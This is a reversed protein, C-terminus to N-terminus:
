RRYSRDSRSYHDRDRDRDRDRERGGDRRGDGNRERDRENKYSDRYRDERRDRMKDRDRRYEDLRPRRDGKSKGKSDWGGLDEEGTLKKSGLGMGNPRKTIEKAKPGRMKGDWGQGMLLSAGFGEVPIADYTELDDEEPANAAADRYASDETRQVIRKRGTDKGMLADMAEEDATKPEKPAKNEGVGEQKTENQAPKKPITLGYKLSEEEEEEGKVVNAPVGNKEQSKVEPSKTRRRALKRDDSRHQAARSREDDLFEAGNAGFHTISELQADEPEEEGSSDDHGHDFRPRHRKGLASSPAPRAATRTPAKSSSSAGFRIAIRSEKPETM